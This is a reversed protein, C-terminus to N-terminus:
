VGVGQSTPRHEPNVNSNDQEGSHNGDYRREEFARAVKSPEAVLPQGLVPALGLTKSVTLDATLCAQLGASCAIQSSTGASCNLRRFKPAKM